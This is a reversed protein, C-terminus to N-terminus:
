SRAAMQRGTQWRRRLGAAVRERLAGAAPLPAGDLMGAPEVGRISGTLFVEDAALLGARTLPGEHVEIGAERAAVIAGARAIGPLIRGDDAPAFLAGNRAAFVNARGAELVEGGRDVLLPLAPADVADLSRRDAWKHRGLGGVYALTELHAARDPGPFVDAPDVPAIAMEVQWGASDPDLGGIESELAAGAKPAAVIRLRALDHGAARERVRGALRTPPEGGYLAAISAALRTLHTELEVPEGDLVLLTEFLGRSPDPASPSPPAQTNQTAPPQSM